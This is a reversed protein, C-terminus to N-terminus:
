CSNLGGSKEKMKNVGLDGTKLYNFISKVCKQKSKVVAGTRCVKVKGM